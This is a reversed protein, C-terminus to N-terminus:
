VKNSEPAEEPDECVLLFVCDLAGISFQLDHSGVKKFDLGFAPVVLRILGEREPPLYQGGEDYRTDYVLVLSKGQYIVLHYKHAVTGLEGFDFLVSFRPKAPKGETAVLFDLGMSEVYARIHQNKLVESDQTGAAIEVRHTDGMVEEQTSVV